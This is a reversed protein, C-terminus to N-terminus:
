LARQRAGAQPQGIEVAHRRRRSRSQDAAHDNAEGEALCQGQRRLFREDRNIMELRMREGRAQGVGDFKGIQQQQDRAAMRLKM